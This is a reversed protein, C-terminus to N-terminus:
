HPYVSISPDAVVDNLNWCPFPILTGIGDGNEVNFDSSPRFWSGFKVFSQFM